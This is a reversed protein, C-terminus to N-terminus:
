RTSPASQASPQPEARFGNGQGAPFIGLTPRKEKEIQMLGNVVEHVLGDGGLAFITDFNEGLEHTIIVADLPHTTGIVEFYHGRTVNTISKSCTRSRKACM